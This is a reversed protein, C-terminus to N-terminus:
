APATKGPRLWADPLGPFLGPQHFDPPTSPVPHYALHHGGAIVYANFSHLGDPIVSTPLCIRSWWGHDDQGWEVTPALDEYRRRFQRPADFDLVLWRGDRGLEIELYVESGVLFVEVVDTEWLRAVRSGKPADPVRPVAQHPLWGAIEIGGSNHQIKARGHRQTTDCRTGDWFRSITVDLPTASM